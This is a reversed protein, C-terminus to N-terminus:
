KKVGALDSLLKAIEADRDAAAHQYIMAAGVTSHGLRNMLERLSAGTAAALTAGTHRLDHWRLDKRGAAERAPYYWRYLTSSALQEGSDRGKFLLSSQAPPVHKNLHHVFEPLLHPPIAVDRVGADSKPTGVIPPEGPVRAVARRVKITGSTPIGDDDTVMVIDGRRLELVEGQRLGCWAAILVALRLRDPMHEVITALEELTAPEPKHARKSTGGGRIVCPNRTILQEAEATGMIAKLLSYAHARQTPANPGVRAHWARVETATLENLRLGGLEPTIHKDLLREYLARTRPKLTRSKVWGDGYDKVTPLLGAEAVARRDKPPIWEEPRAMLRHEDLLWAEADMKADFTM